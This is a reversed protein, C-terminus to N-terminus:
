HLFFDRPPFFLVFTILYVPLFLRTMYFSFLPRNRFSRVFSRDAATAAVAVLFWGDRLNIDEGSRKKSTSSTTDKNNLSGQRGKM